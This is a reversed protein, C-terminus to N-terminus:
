KVIGGSINKLIEKAVKYTFISFLILIFTNFFLFLNDIPFIWNANDIITRITQTNTRIAQILVPDALPLLGLLFSLITYVIGLITSIIM